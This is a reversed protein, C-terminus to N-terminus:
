KSIFITYIARKNIEGFQKYIIYHYLYCFGKLTKKEKRRQTSFM